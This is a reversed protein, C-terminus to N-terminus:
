RDRDFSRSTKAKNLQKAKEKEEKMKYYEENFEKIMNMRKMTENFDNIANEYGIVKVKAEKLEDSATNYLDEFKDKEYKLNKNEYTLNHVKYINEQGIHALDILEKYDDENMTIKHGILSKKADINNLRLELLKREETAKSLRESEKKLEQVQKALTEKKLEAVEKNGDRTAENLVNVKFGMSQELYKDLDQHFTKLDLRNNCEKASIKYKAKEKDYVVPVYSFHIHPTVEDMHVYASVVNNEGYRNKLFDYTKRFFEAQYEEPLDKPKTVVWDCMVNVDKRNLCKLEECREKIFKYQNQEPALNYNLPTRNIDISTNGFKIYDGNEDKAREYHKTMHGLAGRTYKELRAM